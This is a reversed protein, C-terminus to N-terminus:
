ARGSGRSPKPPVAEPRDSGCSACGGAPMARRLLPAIVWARLLGASRAAVARRALMADLRSLLTFRTRSPVLSWATYTAASLVAFAVIAQQVMLQVM